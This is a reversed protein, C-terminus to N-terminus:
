RDGEVEPFAEIFHSWDFAEEEKNIWREMEKVCFDNTELITISTVYDSIAFLHFVLPGSSFDILSGLKFNGSSQWRQFVSMPFIFLEEFLTKDSDPSCYTALHDKPDFEDAHYCKYSGSDM